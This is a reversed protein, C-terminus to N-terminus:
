HPEAALRAAGLLPARPNLALHVPITGMLTAFRGKDCFAGFFTGDLLKPLIKPAIGGGVFVGSTALVKLALNGAEGGYIGAFRGLAREAVADKGQLAAETVAPAVDGRRAIDESLWPPEPVGSSCNRPATARPIDLTLM